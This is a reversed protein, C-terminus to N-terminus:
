KRAKGDLWATVRRGLRHRIGPCTNWEELISSARKRALATDGNQIAEIVPALEIDLPANPFSHNQCQGTVEKLPSLDEINPSLAMNLADIPMGRLASIDTLAASHITLNTIAMGSLAQINALADSKISFSTLPMGALSALDNASGGEITLAQLELGELQSLDKFSQKAPSM